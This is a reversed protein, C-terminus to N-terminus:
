ATLLAQLYAHASTEDAFSRYSIGNGAQQVVEAIGLRSIANTAAVVAVRVVAPREIRGGYWDDRSLQKEDPSLPLMLRADSLYCSWGRRLLLEGLNVLLARLDATTHKTTQYRVVAYGAPHELLEGAPNQYYFRLPPVLM